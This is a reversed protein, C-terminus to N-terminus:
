DEFRWKQDNEKLLEVKTPEWGNETVWHLYVRYTETQDRNSVTIVPKQPDENSGKVWWIISDGEELETAYHVALIMEEWDVTSDDYTTVHPEDQETGIPEWDKVITELVNEDANEIGEELDDNRETEGHQQEEDAQGEGNGEENEEDEGAPGSSNISNSHNSAPNDASDNFFFLNVILFLGTFVALLLIVNLKRTKRRRAEYRSVRSEDDFFSNHSM